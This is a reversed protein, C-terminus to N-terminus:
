GEGKGKVGGMEGEERGKGKMGGKEGEERGKGRRFEERKSETRPVPM